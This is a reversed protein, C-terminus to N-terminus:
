EGIAAVKLMDRYLIGVSELEERANSLVVRAFEVAILGERMDNSLFDWGKDGVRNKARKVFEKVIAEDWLRKENKELIKAM